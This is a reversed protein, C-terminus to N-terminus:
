YRHHDICVECSCQFKGTYHRLGVLVKSNREFSTRSRDFRSRIKGFLDHENKDFFRRTAFACLDALQVMSTLSSDVFLPTEVVHDIKSWITGKKHFDRMAHTLRRAETENNDQVILGFSLEAKSSAAKSLYTNFRTVVQEFSEKFHDVAVESTYKKHRADAFIRVDTWSGILNALDNICALRETKSLHVYAQTKIYNKRLSKSRPSKTTSALNQARLHLVAEKRTKRDLTSFNSVQAQEPYERMMWATHIEEDVLGYAAKIQAIQSDKIKWTEVPVAMGLLVFHDTNGSLDVTGSEDLYCIYM